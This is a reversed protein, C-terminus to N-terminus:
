KKVFVCSYGNPVTFEVKNDKFTYSFSLDDFFITKAKEDWKIKVAEGDFALRGTGDKEFTLGYEPVAMNYSDYREKLEKYLRTEGDSTVSELDYSGIEKAEGCSTLCVVLVLAFLVLWAKKM